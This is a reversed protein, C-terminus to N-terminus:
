LEFIKGETGVFEKEQITIWGKKIGDQLLKEFKQLTIVYGNLLPDEEYTRTQKIGGNGFILIQESIRLCYLRLRGSELPLACVEDNYKGETTRFYRELAGKDLIKSIAYIIRQYDKNLKANRRFEQLFKEFETLDEGIFKISYLSVTESQEVLELNAKGM